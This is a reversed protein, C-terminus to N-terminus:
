LIETPTWCPPPQVSIICLEHHQQYVCFYITSCNRSHNWWVMYRQGLHRHNMILNYELPSM